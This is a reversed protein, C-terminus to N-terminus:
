QFSINELLIKSKQGKVKNTLIVGFMVQRQIENPLITAQAMHYNDMTFYVLRGSQILISCNSPFTTQTIHQPSLNPLIFAVKYRDITFNSSAVVVGYLPTKDKSVFGVFFEEYGEEKSLGVKQDDAKRPDFVLQGKSLTFNLQINFEEIDWSGESFVSQGSEIVLSTKSLLIADTSPNMTFPSFLSDIDNIIIEETIAERIAQELWADKWSLPNSPTPEIYNKHQIFYGDPSKVVGMSYYLISMDNRLSNGNAQGRLELPTTSPLIDMGNWFGESYWTKRFLPGEPVSYLSVGVGAVGSELSFMINTNIKSSLIPTYVAQQGGSNICGISKSGVFRSYTNSGLEHDGRDGYFHTAVVEGESLASYNNLFIVKKSKDPSGKLCSGSFTNALSCWIKEYYVDINDITNKLISSYGSDIRVQYGDWNWRDSGFFSAFPESRLGGQNSRNDYIIHECSEEKVLYQMMADYICMLSYDAQFWKSWVKEFGPPCPPSFLNSSQSLVTSYLFWNGLYIYGIKKGNTLEPRIIGCYYELYSNKRDRGDQTNSAGALVWTQPDPYSLGKRVAEQDYPNVFDFLRAIIKTGGLISKESVNFLNMNRVVFGQERTKEGLGDLGWYVNKVSGSVLYNIAPIIHCSGVPGYVDPIGIQNYDKEIRSKFVEDFLSVVHYPDNINGREYLKYKKKIALPYSNTRQKNNIFYSSPDVNLMDRMRLLLKITLNSSLTEWEEVFTGYVDTAYGTMKSHVSTGYLYNMTAVLSSWWENFKMSSSIKHTVEVYCNAPSIGKMYGKEIGEDIQDFSSTDKILHFSHLIEFASGIGRNSDVDVRNKAQEKENICNWLSVGNKYFGEMGKIGVIKVNSGPLCNHDKLCVITTLGTNSLGNYESPDLRASCRVKVIPTQFRVGEEKIKKIFDMRKSQDMEAYVYPANYNLQPTGNTELLDIMWDFLYVPDELNRITFHERWKFPFAKDKFFFRYIIYCAVIFLLGYIWKM